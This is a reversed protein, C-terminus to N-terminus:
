KWRGTRGATRGDLRGATRGDVRGCAFSQIEFLICIYGKMYWLYVINHSHSAKQLDLIWNLYQYSVSQRWLLIKLVVNVEYLEELKPTALQILTKDTLNWSKVKLSCSIRCWKNFLYLSGIFCWGRLSFVASFVLTADNKDYEIWNCFFPNCLIINIQSRHNKM